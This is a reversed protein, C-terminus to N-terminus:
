YFNRQISNFYTQALQNLSNGESSEREVVQRIYNYLICSIILRDEPEIGDIGIFSREVAKRINSNKM